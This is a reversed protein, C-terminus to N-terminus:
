GNIASQNPIVFKGKKSAEVVELVKEHPWKKDYKKKDGVDDFDKMVEKRKNFHGIHYTKVFPCTTIKWKDSLIIRFCIDVDSFSTRFQEDFRGIDEWCEKRIAFLSTAQGIMGPVFKNVGVIFPRQDIAQTIKRLFLFPSINLICMKFFTPSFNGYIWGLIDAAGIKCKQRIKVGFYGVDPYKTTFDILDKFANVYPFSDYDMGIVIDSEAESIGRNMSKGFSFSPTSDEILIPRFPYKQTHELHQLCKKTTEDNKNPVPIVVDIARM